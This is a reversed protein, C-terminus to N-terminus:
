RVMVAGTLDIERKLALALERIAQRNTPLPSEVVVRLTREGGWGSTDPSIYGNTSPTFLEPGPEGVLYTKGAQVPGGEARQQIVGSDIMRKIWDFQGLNQNVVNRELQLMENNLADMQSWDGQALSAAARGIISFFGLINAASDVMRTEVTAIVDAITVWVKAWNIAWGAAEGGGSFIAGIKGLSDQIRGIDETISNAADKVIQEIEPWAQQWSTQTGEVLDKFKQGWGELSTGLGGAKEDLWPKLNQNWMENLKPEMQVSWIDGAWLSFQNWKEELTGLLQNRKTEDTVWSTLGTFFAKLNPAVNGYINGAWTAFQNWKEGLTGLLQNRKTEDTVWSTLDAWFIGLQEGVKGFLGGAWSAFQNWKEGLTGLLANRKTEDTVWNTLDAWFSALGPQVNKTWLDSAWALFASGWAMLNDVILQRKRADTVWASLNNWTSMLGPQLENTWLDAAWAAFASGWAMLNDIIVQRKNADTVWSTLGNWTSILNPLIYSNWISGAWDGFAKAWSTLNDIIAQKRTPENLWAVLSGWAASLAPALTKSWLDTAWGGFARMLDGGWAVIQRIVAEMGGLDFTQMLTNSVYEFVAGIKEFWQVVTPGFRTATATGWDAIKKLQPLFKKGIEISTAEIVGWFIETKGKLTDMRKAAAADADSKALTSQLQRYQEETMNAMAFAARMADTGFITSFQENKQEESLDKTANNLIGIIDAMDKLQGNADYFANQRFPNLMKQVTEEFDKSSEDATGSEHVYTRMAETVGELSREVKGQLRSGLWDAAKGVDLSMLGLARMSDEAKSSQPILRQLFTKFSTGADSGSQFLPSIAAITANFDDFSVGVSAAVGGAQALALGYDGIGFKSAVTVANIGNVAAEMNKADINFASMASSAIDAATAFDAGTSNALLVTSRAAGDMIQAVNLGNKGLMEIAQGAEIASVKLKPDLGLDSILKDVKDTQEATLDMTAAINAVQQEMDAAADTSKITVATFAAIGAAAAGAAVTVGAGIASGLKGFAGSAASLRSDVGAMSREFSNTDAGVKAFLSAIQVGNM